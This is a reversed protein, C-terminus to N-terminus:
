HLDSLARLAELVKPLRDLYLLIVTAVLVVHAPRLDSAWGRGAVGGNSRRDPTAGLARLGLVVAFGAKEM